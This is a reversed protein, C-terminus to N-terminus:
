GFREVVDAIHPRDGATTNLCARVVDALRRDVETMPAPQPLAQGAMALVVPPMAFPTRGTLLEYAVIGFAFVDAAADVHGGKSTEPAMYLPTGLMAGTGTLADRARIEATPANADVSHEDIRSIGFDSIRALPTDDEGSLLVNAPKLDRHVVGAEHLAALGRAIQRLVPVAWDLQGFRERREELSAGRVLEMVLFPAGNAIGVDVIPVLNEHRVRAGIEAERAFRVVNARAVVGTVVKLALKEGDTMREVEYVAGMGGQGLARVVKYRTDFRGGPSMDFPAIPVDTRALFAGLERSREAVQHSLEKKLLAETRARESAITEKQREIIRQQRFSQRLAGDAVMATQFGSAFLAPLMIVPFVLQATSIVGARFGHITLALLLVDYSIAAVAAQLPRLRFVLFAMFTLAAASAFAIDALRMHVSLISITLWGSLANLGCMLPQMRREFWARRSVVICAIVILELLVIAMLWPMIGVPSLIAFLAGQVAGLVAGAYLGSRNLPIAQVAQWALYEGETADDAFRTGRPSLELGLDEAM